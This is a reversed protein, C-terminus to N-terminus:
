NCPTMGQRPSIVEADVSLINQNSRAIFALSVQEGAAITTECVTVGDPIVYTNLTLLDQVTATGESVAPSRVLYVKKNEPVTFDEHTRGTGDFLLLYTAM